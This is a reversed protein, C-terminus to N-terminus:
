IIKVQTITLGTNMLRCWKREPDVANSSLLPTWELADFLELWGACGNENVTGRPMLDILTMNLTVSMRIVITASATGAILM